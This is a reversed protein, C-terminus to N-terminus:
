PNKKRLNGQFAKELTKSKLKFQLYKQLMKSVKKLEEQNTRKKMTKLNLHYKRPHNKM